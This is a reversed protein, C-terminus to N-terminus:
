ASQIVITVTPPTVTSSMGCNPITSFALLVELQEQRDRCHATCFVRGLLGEYSIHPYSADPNRYIRELAIQVTTMVVRQAATPETM